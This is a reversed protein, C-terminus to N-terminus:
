AEDSKRKLESKLREVEAQLAAARAEAAQREAEAAQREAEAAQRATEAETLLRQGTETDHFLLNGDEIRLKFGLQECLLDGSDDADIRKYTRGALRFGQLPPDLYEATPDYVFYEEVGLGAYLKPKRVQDDRRSSLSTVEFVVNPSKGEEWVKYIRRRGPDCDKVVFGDPVFFKRPNGAQYYVLLDSAVYVRQGRFRQKLIDRIRIIWDIHVDTEGMPKGDSEPYEIEDVTQVLAM